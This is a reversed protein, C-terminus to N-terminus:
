IEENLKGRIYNILIKIEKLYTLLIIIALVFPAYMTFNNYAQQIAYSEDNIQMQNMAVSNTVITGYINTAVKIVFLVVVWVVTKITTGKKM